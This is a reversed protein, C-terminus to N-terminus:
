PVMSALSLNRIRWGMAEVSVDFQKALGTAVYQVVYELYDNRTLGQQVAVRRLDEAGALAQTFRATLEDRPMLLAAAFMNAQVEARGLADEPLDEYLQAWEEITTTAPLADIEARHLEFHGLEHALSFRLRTASQNQDYYVESWDRSTFADGNIRQQLGPVPVLNMGLKVDLVADVDVPIDTAGYRRRADDAAEEIADSPRFRIQFM